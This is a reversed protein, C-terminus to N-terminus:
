GHQSLLLCAGRHGFRAASITRRSPIPRALTYRTSPFFVVYDHRYARLQPREIRRVPALEAALNAEAASFTPALATPSWVEGEDAAQRVAPPKVLLRRSPTVASPVHGPPGVKDLCNERFSERLLIAPPSGRNPIVAVYM